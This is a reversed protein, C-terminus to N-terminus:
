GAVGERPAGPELGAGGSGRPARGAAAAAQTRARAGDGGGGGGGGPAEDLGEGRRLPPRLPPAAVGGGPLRLPVPPRGAAPRGCNSCGPGESGAAGPARDAGDGTGEQAGAGEHRRELGEAEATEGPRQEGGAGRAPAASRAPGAPAGRRKGGGAQASAHHGRGSGSPPPPPSPSPPPDRAGPAPRGGGGTVGAAGEAAAPRPPTPPDSNVGDLSANLISERVRRADGLLEAEAQSRAMRQLVEALTHRKTGPTLDSRRHIAVLADVAADELKGKLRRRESGKTARPAELPRRWSVTVEGGPRPAEAAAGRRGQGGRGGGGRPAPPREERQRSTSVVGKKFARDRMLSRLQAQARRLEFGQERMQLELDGNKQRLEDQVFKM